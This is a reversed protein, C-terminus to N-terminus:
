APPQRHEGASAALALALAAAAVVVAGAVVAVAYEYQPEAIASPAILGGTPLLVAFAAVGLRPARPSLLFWGITLAGLPWFTITTTYFALSLAALVAPVALWAPSFREGAADARVSGLLLVAPAALLIVAAILQANTFPTGATGFAAYIGDSYPVQGSATLGAVLGSALVAVLPRGLVLAIAGVLPLVAAVVMWAVRDRPAPIAVLHYAVHPWTMRLRGYWVDWAIPYLAGSSALLLLVLAGLRCGPAWIAVAPAGAPRDLRARLGAAILSAAERPRASPSIEELTALLEASRERRYAAPYALLAIRYLCPARSM